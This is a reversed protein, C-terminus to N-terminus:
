DLVHGCRQPQVVALLTFQFADKFLAPLSVPSKRKLKSRLVIGEAFLGVILDPPDESFVLNRKIVPQKLFTALPM